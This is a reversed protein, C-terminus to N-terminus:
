RHWGGRWEHGGYGYGYGAPVIVCGGLFAALCLAAVPLLRRLTRLM